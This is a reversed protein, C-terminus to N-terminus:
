TLALWIKMKFEMVDPNQQIEIDEIRELYPLQGLGILYRRFDYFEGRVVSHVLLHRPQGALANVDPTVSLPDMNADIAIKRLTPAVMAILNRSLGSKEPTPLVRGTGAHSKAKLSRYIPQISKQEEVQFRIDKIERDLGASYRQVPYIVALVFFLLGGWCSLHFIIMRRPIKINKLRDFM